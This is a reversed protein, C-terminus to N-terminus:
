RPGILRVGELPAAKILENDLTALALGRANLSSLISLTM